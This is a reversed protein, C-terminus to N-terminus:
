EDPAAEAPTVFKLLNALEVERGFWPSRQEVTVGQDRLYEAVGLHLVDYAQQEATAISASYGIRTGRDGERQDALLFKRLTWRWSRAEPAAALYEEYKDAAIVHVYKRGVTVVRVETDRQGDRRGRTGSRMVLTDGKSLKPLPPREAPTM